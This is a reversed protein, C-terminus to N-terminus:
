MRKSCERLLALMEQMDPALPARLEMMERRFPHYFKLRASHLAYRSVVPTSDDGGLIMGRTIVPVEEGRGYFKDCILPFGARSFHVRIQHQRGTHPRASVFAFDGFTEMVKYSTRSPAGDERAAMKIRVPGGDFGLPFDYEGEPPSPVGHTIAYYEKEIEMAEPPLGGLLRREFQYQLLRKADDDKAILLLGSTFRDIRHCLRPVVDQSPDELNRYRLHLANILTNYRFKGVPHVVVGAQKNVALLHEDEYIINIEIKAPDQDAIGSNDVHIVIEEGGKLRHSPKLGARGDVFITGDELEKQIKNRSRWNMVTTLYKDLREGASTPPVRAEWETEPKSLDPPVDNKAHKPHPKVM